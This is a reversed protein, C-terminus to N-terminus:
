RVARLDVTAPWPYEIETALADLSGTEAQERLSQSWVLVRVAAQPLHRATWFGNADTRERAALLWHLWWGTLKHKGVWVAVPATDAPVEGSPDWV